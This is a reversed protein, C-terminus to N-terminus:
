FSFYWPDRLQWVECGKQEVVNVGKFHFSWKDKHVPFGNKIEKKWFVGRHRDYSCRKLKSCSFMRLRRSEIGLNEKTSLPWMKELDEKWEQENMLWVEDLVHQITRQLKENEDSYSSARVNISILPSGLCRQSHVSLPKEADGKQFCLEGKDWFCSRFKLVKRIISVAM